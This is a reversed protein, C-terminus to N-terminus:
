EAPLLPRATLLRPRVRDAEVPTYTSVAVQQYATPVALRDWVPHDYMFQAIAKKAEAGYHVGDAVWEPRLHAPNAPDAVVSAIDMANPFTALLWANYATRVAEKAPVDGIVTDCPTVTTYIPVLGDAEALATLAGVREQCQALTASGGAIDNIGGQIIVAWSNKALPTIDATWRTAMGTYTDGGVARNFIPANLYAALWTSVEPTGGVWDVKAASGAFTSDGILAIGDKYHPYGVDEIQFGGVYLDNADSLNKFPVCHALWFPYVAGAGLGLRVTPNPMQDVAAGSVAECLGWNRRMVGPQTLKPGHGYSGSNFAQRMWIFRDEGLNSVVHYSLLYRRGPVLLNTLGLGTLNSSMMGYYNASTWRTLTIGDRVITDAGNKTSSGVGYHSSAVDETYEWVNRRRAAVRTGAGAPRTYPRDVTVSHWRPRADREAGEDTWGVQFYLYRGNRAGIGPNTMTHRSGDPADLTMVNGEVSVAWSYHTGRVPPTSWDGDWLDDWDPYEHGSGRDWLIVGLGDEDLRLHIGPNLPDPAQESIDIVVAGNSLGSDDDWSCEGAVRTPVVGVDLFAYGNGDGGEAASASTLTGNQIIPYAGNTWTELGRSLPKPLAQLAVTDAKGSFDDHFQGTSRRATM